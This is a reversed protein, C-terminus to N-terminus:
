FASASIYIRLELHIDLKARNVKREIPYYAKELLDLSNTSVMHKNGTQRATMQTM